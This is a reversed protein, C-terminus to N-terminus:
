PARVARLLDVSNPDQRPHLCNLRPALSSTAFPADIDPGGPIYALQRGLDAIQQGTL